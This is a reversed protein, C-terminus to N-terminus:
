AGTRSRGPVLLFVVGLSVRLLLAAYSGKTSDIM